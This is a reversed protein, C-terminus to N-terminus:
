PADASSIMSAWPRFCTVSVPAMSAMISSTIAALALDTSSNRAPLSFAKLARTPWTMFALRPLALGACTLSIRLRLSPAQGCPPGGHSAREGQRQEDGRRRQGARNRRVHRLGVGAQPLDVGRHGLHAAHRHGELAAHAAVDL